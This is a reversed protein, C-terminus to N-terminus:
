ASGRLAESPAARRSHRSAWVGCGLALVGSGVVAALLLRWSVVFGASVEEANGGYWAWCAGYHFVLGLGVGTVAAPLWLMVGEILELALLARTTMGMAKLMGTEAVKQEARLAQLVRLNSMALVVLVLELVLLLAIAQQTLQAIKSVEDVVTRDTELKRGGAVVTEVADAAQVLSRPDRTYIAAQDYDLRPPPDVRLGETAPGVRLYETIREGPAALKQHLERLWRNWQELSATANVEKLSVRWIVKGDRDEVSALRLELEDLYARVNAPLDAFTKYKEVWSAPLPTTKVSALEPNPNAAALERAYEALLLFAHPTNLNEHTVGLVPVPVDGGTTVLQLEQPLPDDPRYGLLRLGHPTLIVGKDGLAFPKKDQRLPRRVFLPDRQEGEPGQALFYTRGDLPEGFNGNAKRFTLAVQYYPFVGEVGDRRTVGRALAARVQELVEPTLRHTVLTDGGIVLCLALSNKAQRRLLVEEMGFAFGFLAVSLGVTLAITQAMVWTSRRAVKDTLERYALGTLYRFM